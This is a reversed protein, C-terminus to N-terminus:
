AERALQSCERLRTGRVREERGQAVLLPHDVGLRGKATRFVHELVQGAVGM